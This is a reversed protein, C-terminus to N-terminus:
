ASGSANDPEMYRVCALYVGVALGVLLLPWVEEHAARFWTPAWVGVYYLSCIRLVNAAVLVLLGLGLAIAKRRLPRPFAMMASVFLINIEAADCNRVIQLPYRGHIYIGDVCVGPELLKLVAGALRAYGALYGILWDQHAGFLEFPFAYIAFLCGAILAYTVGFRLGLRQVGRLSVSQETGVGGM